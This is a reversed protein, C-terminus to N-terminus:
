FQTFLLLFMSVSFSNLGMRQTQTQRVMSAINLKSPSTSTSVFASVLHSCLMIAIFSSHWVVPLNTVRNEFFGITANHTFGKDWLDCEFWVVKARRVALRPPRGLLDPMRGRSFCAQPSLSPSGHQGGLPQCTNCWLDIKPFVCWTRRQWTHILNGVRAKFGLPSMVFIVYTRLNKLFFSSLHQWLKSYKKPILETKWTRNEHAKFKGSASDHKWM